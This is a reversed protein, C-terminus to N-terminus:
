AYHNLLVLLWSPSTGPTVRLRPTTWRTAWTEYVPPLIMPTPTAAAAPLAVPPGTSGDASAPKPIASPGASPKPTDSSGGSPKPTASSGASHGPTPTPTPSPAPSPPGEIVATRLEGCAAVAAVAAADESGSPYALSAPWVGTVQAIRAAATEIEYKLNQASQRALGVHNMTHDGIENGAAVLALLDASSLFNPIDIRSAIVFYTAVFGHKVLIPLAYKYGDDWGDDITIVFTKSPPKIHAQMYGALGAMTITHWGGAQVADLQASFTQPPVVLGPISNGAEATPVIRHYMLIPVQLVFSGSAGIAPTAVPTAWPVSSPDCSNVLPYSNALPLTPSPSATINPSPSLSPTPATTATAALAIRSPSPTPIPKAAGVHFALTTGVVLLVILGVAGLAVLRHSRAYTV